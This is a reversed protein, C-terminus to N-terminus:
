FCGCLGGSLRMTVRLLGMGEGEWQRWCGKWWRVEECLLEIVCVCVGFGWIFGLMGSFLGLVGRCVGM